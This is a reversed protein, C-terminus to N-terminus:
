RPSTTESSRSIPPTSLAAGMSRAATSVQAQNAMLPVVNDAGILCENALCLPVATERATHSFRSRPHQCEFLLRSFQLAM